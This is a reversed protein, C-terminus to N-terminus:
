VYCKVSYFSKTVVQARKIVDSVMSLKHSQCRAIAYIFLHFHSGRGFGDCDTSM